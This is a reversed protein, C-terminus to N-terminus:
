GDSAPELLGAAVLESVLDAVDRRVAEEDVEYRDALSAVVEEVPQELLHAMMDAGVGDLGFYTESALNLLVM